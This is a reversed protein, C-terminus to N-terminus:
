EVLTWGAPYASPSWVNNDIVSEYVQGNFIVRDGTMYPNTSDPQVWESPTGDPNTLVLTFLQPAETPVWNPQSTHNQLVKYLNEGYRVRDGVTYRHENGDWLPFLEKNSLASEDTLNTALSEVTARLERARDVIGM